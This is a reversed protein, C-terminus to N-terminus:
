ITTDMLEREALLLAAQSADIDARLDKANQIAAEYAAKDTAYKAEATELQEQSVLARQRLEGARKMALESQALETAARRVDPVQHIPPLHAGAQTVGFKAFSRNLTARQQDVKYQAKARDLEVIVDGTKVRDGLDARIQLVKGVAESAITVEDAAVLTGV